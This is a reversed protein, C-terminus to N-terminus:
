ALEYLRFAHKFWSGFLLSIKHYNAVRIRQSMIKSSPTAKIKNFLSRYYTYAVFVGFRSGANLEKIGKLAENFDYEIEKELLRKEDDRFHTLNLSPFYVRGLSQYDEKMDRLFNVKQFAAGLKRAAPKLREYENANGNTFVRLCMLGVVEASGYIYEEYSSESHYNKNLDTEMSKFFATILEEEINYQHVVEQFSNLIPNLSIKREIAKFTEKKFEELLEAKDHEHFTDVIEDAFRVLGYINYVPKRFQKSLCYIGLSFSTSYTTTTVKSAHYSVKDFLQRM